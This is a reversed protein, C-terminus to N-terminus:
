GRDPIPRQMLPHYAPHPGMESRVLVLETVPWRPGEYARLVPMLEAIAAPSSRRAITVHPRFMKDDPRIRKARLSRRVSRTLRALGEVDGRVGTWLTSGFRGGGSISLTGVPSLQATDLAAVAPAVDSIEGLFALTIHWREGPMVRASAGQLASSLHSRAEEPPFVAVFLRM